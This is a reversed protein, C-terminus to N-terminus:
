QQEQKKYVIDYDYDDDKQDESILNEPLKFNLKM